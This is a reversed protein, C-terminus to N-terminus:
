DPATYCLIRLSFYPKDVLHYLRHPPLESLLFHTAEGVRQYMTPAQREREESSTPLHSPSSHILCPCGDAVDQGHMWSESGGEAYTATHMGCRCCDCSTLDPATRDRNM